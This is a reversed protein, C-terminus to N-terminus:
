AEHQHKFVKVGPINRAVERIKAGMTEAVAM